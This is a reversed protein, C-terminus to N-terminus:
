KLSQCCRGGTEYWSFHEFHHLTEARCRARTKLWHGGKLIGKFPKGITNHVWEDANGLQDHVGFVSVCEDRNGSPERGDLKDANKPNFPDVFKKDINCTSKNRIYGDGYAYPRAEEGECAFTWDSEDCVHKGEANCAKEIDLYSMYVKPLEGKINPYEYEDICFHKAVRNKSKCKTKDFAVCRINKPEGRENLWILCPQVVDPCYMGKVEIMGAPCPSREIIMDDEPQDDNMNIDSLEIVHNIQPLNKGPISFVAAVASFFFLSRLLRM